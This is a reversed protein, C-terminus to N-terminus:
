AAAQTTAACTQAPPPQLLPALTHQLLAGCLLGAVLLALSRSRAGALYARRLRGLRTTCVVRGAQPSYIQKM